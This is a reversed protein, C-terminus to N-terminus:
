DLSQGTNLDAALVLLQAKTITGTGRCLARGRCLFLTLLGLALALTPCHHLATSYPRVHLSMLPLLVFVLRGLVSLCLIIAIPTTEITGDQAVSTEILRRHNFATNEHTESPAHDNLEWMSPCHDLYHSWLCGRQLRGDSEGCCANVIWKSFHLLHLLYGSGVSSLKM